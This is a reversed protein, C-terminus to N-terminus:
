GPPTAHTALLRVIADEVGKAAGDDYGSSMISFPVWRGTSDVRVWGSLASVDILTGTKARVQVGTLRGQLTGQGGRPLTSRLDTEWPQREAFWLLRVIDRANARNDYSLGSGDRCTFSPGRAAIWACVRGAGAAISGTGTLDHGLFKGLVEAHFNRSSTNMRDVIALLPDSWVTALTRLGGPHRGARADGRVVIGRAELKARLAAAARREPDNIHVGRATENGEFTLATPLPAYVAPFYDRWGPAWWDRRFPGTSGIVDGRIRRIGAAELTDALGALDDHGTEPDGHGVVWLNGEIIGETVRSGTRLETRLRRDPDYRDFLAMSLLLKQNSAPARQRGARHRYWWAGADGVAVSFPREGILADLDDKWGARASAAPAAAGVLLLALVLALAARAPKV